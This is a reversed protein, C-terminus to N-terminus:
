DSAIEERHQEFARRTRDDSTAEALDGLADVLRQEDYLLEQLGEVLLQESSETTM